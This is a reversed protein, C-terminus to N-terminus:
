SKKLWIDYVDLLYLALFTMALFAGAFTLVWSFFVQHAYPILWMSGIDIVVLIFPM